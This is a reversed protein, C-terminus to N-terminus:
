PSSAPSAVDLASLVAKEQESNLLFPRCRDLDATYSTIGVGSPLKSLDNQLIRPFGDKVHYFNMETVRFRTEARQKETARFWGAKVMNNTLIRAAAKNTALKDITKDGLAQLSDEKDPTQRLGIGVLYLATLGADNLQHVNAIMVKGSAKAKVEFAIGQTGFDHDGKNPGNWSAIATESSVFQSLKMLFTLEAFLGILKQPSLGDESPWWKSWEDLTNVLERGARGYALERTVAKAIVEALAPWLSGYSNGQRAEFRIIVKPIPGAISEGIKLYQLGKGVKTIDQCRVRRLEMLWEGSVKDVSLSLRGNAIEAVNAATTALEQWKRELFTSETDPHAPITAM